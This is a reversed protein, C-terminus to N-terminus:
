KLANFVGKEIIEATLDVFHHDYISDTFLAHLQIKHFQSDVLSIKKEDKLGYLLYKSPESSKDFLIQRKDTLYIDWATISCILLGKDDDRAKIYKQLKRNKMLDVFLSTIGNIREKEDEIEQSRGDLRRKTEDSKSDLIKELQEVISM